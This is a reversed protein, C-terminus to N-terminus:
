REIVKETMIQKGLMSCSLKEDFIKLNESKEATKAVCARSTVFLLSPSFFDYLMSNEYSRHLPEEIISKQTRFISYQNYLIETFNLLCFQCTVLDM